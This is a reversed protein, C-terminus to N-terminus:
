LKVDNAALSVGPKGIRERSAAASRDWVEKAGSADFWKDKALDTQLKSMDELMGKAKVKLKRAKEEAACLGTELKWM